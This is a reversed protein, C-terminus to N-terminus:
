LWWLGSSCSAGAVYALLVLAPQGNPKGWCWVMAEYCVALINLSCCVSWRVLESVDM